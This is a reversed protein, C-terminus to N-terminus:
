ARAAAIAETEEETMGLSLLFGKLQHPSMRAGTLQSLIERETDRDGSNRLEQLKNDLSGMAGSLQKNTLNSVDVKRGGYKKGVLDTKLGGMSSAEEPTAAADHMHGTQNMRYPADSELGVLLGGKHKKDGQRHGMYLHGSRGDEMITQRHEDGQVGKNGIGGVALDTALHKYGPDKGGFLGRIKGGFGSMGAKIAAFIGRNEKSSGPKGVKERELHHTGAARQHVGASKGMDAGFIASDLSDAEEKNQASPLVFENRAGHSFATAIDNSWENEQGSVADKVTFKGMQMMLLLRSMVGASSQGKSIAENAMEEIDGESRTDNALDYDVDEESIEDPAFLKKGERNVNYESKLRRLDNKEKFHEKVNQKQDDTASMLTDTLMRTNAIEGARKFKDGGEERSLMSMALRTIPNLAKTATGMYADAIFEPDLAQDGIIDTERKIHAAEESAMRYKDVPDMNDANSYNGVAVQNSIGALEPGQLQQLIGGEDLTAMEELNEPTMARKSGTIGLMKKYIGAQQRLTDTEETTANKNFLNKKSDVQKSMKKSFKKAASKKRKESIFGMLMAFPNSGQIQAGASAPMAFGGAAAPAFGTNAQAELGANNVLGSGQVMGAGQQLVHTTEHTLLDRGSQSFISAGAGPLHVENGQAFAAGPHISGLTKNEYVELGELPVGFQQELDTMVPDPVNRRVSDSKIAAVTDTSEYLAKLRQSLADKLGDQGLSDTETTNNGYTKLADQNSIYGFEVNEVSKKDRAAEIPKVAKRGSYKHM